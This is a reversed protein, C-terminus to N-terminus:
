RGAILEHFRFFTAPQGTSEAKALSIKVQIFVMSHGLQPVGIFAAATSPAIPAPFFFFNRGSLRRSAPFAQRSGASSAPGFLPSL